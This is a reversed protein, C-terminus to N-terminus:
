ILTLACLSVASYIAWWRATRKDALVSVLAAACGAFLVSVLWASQLRLPTFGFCDIYLWLKSAAIVAFVVSEAVLAASAIRLPANKRANGASTRLVLWLLTFNIGMVRCLEFFGQRAYESVIFGDPLSRTFAGFLYKSQLAFFFAYVACFVITIVLWAASPVKGLRALFADLATRKRDIEAREERATGCAAGFLYAGCPISFIVRYVTLDDIEFTFYQTVRGVIGGFEDDALSLMNVAGALLVGGFAFAALVWLLKEWSKKEKIVGSVGYFVTRIRLFFHKLPYVAAGLFADAPLLRGTKEELLADSRSLAYWVAEGHFVLLPFFAGDFANQRGFVSGAWLMLFCGLWLCDEWRRKKGWNALEVCVLFGLPFVIKELTGDGFVFEFWIYALPYTLCAAAIELPKATFKPATIDGAPAAGEPIRMEEM